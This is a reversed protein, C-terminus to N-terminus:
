NTLHALSSMVLVFREDRSLLMRLIPAAFPLFPVSLVHDSQGEVVAIDPKGLRLLGVAGSVAYYKVQECNNGIQAFM